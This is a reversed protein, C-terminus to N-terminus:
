WEIDPIIRTTHCDKTLCQQLLQDGSVQCQTRWDHVHLPQFSALAQEWMRFDFPAIRQVM